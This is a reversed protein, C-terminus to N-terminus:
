VPSCAQQLLTQIRQSPLARHGWRATPQKRLSIPATPVGLGVLPLTIVAVSTTERKLCPRMTEHWDSPSSGNLRGSYMANNALAASIPPALPMRALCGSFTRATHAATDRGTM